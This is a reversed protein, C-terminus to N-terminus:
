SFTNALVHSSHLLIMPISELTLMFELFKRNSHRVTRNRGVIAGGRLIQRVLLLVPVLRAEQAVLATHRQHVLLEAGLGVLDVAAVAVVRLERRATVTAALNEAGTLECMVYCQCYM